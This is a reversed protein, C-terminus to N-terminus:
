GVREDLLRAVTGSRTLKWREALEDLREAVDPPVRLVVRVTHRQQEPINAGSAKRKKEAMGDPYTVSPRVKTAGVSEGPRAPQPDPADGFSTSAQRRAEEEREADCTGCRQYLSTGHKCRPNWVPGHYGGM